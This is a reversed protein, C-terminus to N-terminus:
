LESLPAVSDVQEQEDEEILGRCIDGVVRPGDYILSSYIQVLSAGAELMERADKASSVGGVGIIPYAGGSKDHIQRVIDVARRRLPEGSLRGAGIRSAISESTKLDSRSQTGSTAVVGDLPTSVLVEVVADIMEDSIDPAVKVMIPRYDSQGRRFDFLQTLLQKIAVAPTTQEDCVLNNYSINVTFYDVYQYLNRFSKLYDRAVANAQTTINPVINCGVVVSPDRRRLREIAYGWGRNPHGMRQVVAHDKPLRYVRPKPNGTQQEPSIAGVEVFGFGIDSLENVVEGNVDFGAALGVPNPFHVGFVSRELSPHEVRYARRLMKRGVGFPLAGLIRLLLIALRQASEINLGFLAPKIISNYLDMTILTSENKSEFIRVFKCIVVKEM